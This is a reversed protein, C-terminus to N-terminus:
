IFSPDFDPPEKLTRPKLFDPIPDEKALICYLGYSLKSTIFSRPPITNLDGEFHVYSLFSKKASTKYAKHLLTYFIDPNDVYLHSMLTINFPKNKYFLKKALGLWSLFRLTGQFSKVRKSTTMPYVDQIKSKNWLAVLGVIESNDDIAMLFNEIKLGNWNKIATMLDKGFHPFVILRNQQKKRIYAEIKKLDYNTAYRVELTNLPKASFPYKGHVNILRYKRFLHYRPLNRKISRPRILANQAQNRKDGISSFIYKCNREDREKILIPLFHTAWERIARRSRSVRLDTAYGITEEQGDLICKQFIITATTHVEGKEDILLYTVYDSSLLKYQNFFNDKRHFSLGVLGPLVTEQYFQILEKNYSKDAKVLKL